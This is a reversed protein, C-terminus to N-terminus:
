RRKIEIVGGGRGWERPFLNYKGVGKIKHPSIKGVRKDFAPGIAPM